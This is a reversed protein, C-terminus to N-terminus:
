LIILIFLGTCQSTYMLVQKINSLKALNAPPVTHLLVNLVQQAVFSHRANTNWDRAYTLLKQVQDMTCRKVIEEIM